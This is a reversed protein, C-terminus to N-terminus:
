GQHRACHQDRLRTQGRVILLLLIIVSVGVIIIIIFFVILVELVMIIKIIVFVMIILVQNFLSYAEVVCKAASVVDYSILVGKM